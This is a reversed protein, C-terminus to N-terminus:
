EELYGFKTLAEQEIVRVRQGEKRAVYGIAAEAATLWQKSPDKDDCQGPRYHQYVARQINRPVQKWHAWCMLLEPKVPTQCNRAHCHHDM